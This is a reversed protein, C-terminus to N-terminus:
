LSQCLCLSSIFIDDEFTSNGSDKNIVLNVIKRSDTGLNHHYVLRAITENLLKPISMRVSKFQKKKTATHSLLLAPPYITSRLEM